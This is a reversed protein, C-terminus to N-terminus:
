ETKSMRNKTMIFDSHSIRLLDSIKRVLYEEHMDLVGDIFAVKWLSEILQIKQENSYQANILSTFQFYDTAQHRQQEALEILSTAQETTLSFNNQILELILEQEKDEVVEDMMMMELFLAACALQIKEDSSEEPASLKLHEDFFLKLQNLM